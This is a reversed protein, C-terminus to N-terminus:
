ADSPTELAALLRARNTAAPDEAYLRLVRWGGRELLADGALREPTGEKEALPVIRVALPGGPAERFLLDAHALGGGGPEGGGHGAEAAWARIAERFTAHATEEGVSPERAEAEELAGLFTRLLRAGEGGGETGEPAPLAEAGFSRFVRLRGGLRARSLWVCLAGATQRLMDGGLALRGEAKPVYTMSIAVSDAEQGQAQRTTLSRFRGDVAVRAGTARLSVQQAILRAQELNPSCAIVSRGEALDAVAQRAVAEAEADNVVCQGVHRDKAGRLPPLLTGEGDRANPAPVYSLAGGYRERSLWGFVRDGGGRLSLTLRGVTASPVRMAVSLADEGGDGLLQRTDGLLAVRRAEALFPLLEGFATLGAEDAVAAAFGGVLAGTRPVALTLPWLAKLADGWRGLFSEMAERGPPTPAAALACVEREFRTGRLSAAAERRRREMGSALAHRAEQEGLRMRALREACTAEARTGPTLPHAHGAWRTATAPLAEGATGAAAAFVAWDLWACLTGPTDAGEALADAACQFLPAVAARLAKPLPALFGAPLARGRPVSRRLNFPNALQAVRRLWWIGLAEGCVHGEARLCARLRTLAFGAERDERFPALPSAMRASPLREGLAAARFACAEATLAEGVYASALPVAKMPTAHTPRQALLDRTARLFPRPDDAAGPSWAYPRWAEPLAEWLRRRQPTDPALLVCPGEQAAVAALAVALTSKGSGPAADAVVLPREAFAEAVARQEPTAGFGLRGEALPAPAPPEAAGGGLARALPNAMLTPARALLADALAREGRADAERIADALRCLLPAGERGFAEPPLGRPIGFRRRILRLPYVRAQLIKEPRTDCAQRWDIGQAVWTSEALVARGDALAEHMPAFDAVPASPWHPPLGEPFYAPMAHNHTLVLAVDLGAREWASLLLMSLSLCNGSGKALAEAPTKCYQLAEPFDPPRWSSEGDDYRLRKGLLTQWLRAPYAAPSEEPLREPLPADRMASLIHAVAQADDHARNGAAHRALAMAEEGFLHFERRWTGVRLLCRHPPARRAREALLVDPDPRVCEWRLRGDSGRPLTQRPFYPCESLDAVEAEGRPLTGLPEVPILGYACSSLLVNCPLFDM